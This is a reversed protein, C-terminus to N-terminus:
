VIKKINAKKYVADLIGETQECASKIESPKDEEALSMFLQYLKNSDKSDKYELRSKM